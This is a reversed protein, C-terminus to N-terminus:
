SARPLLFSTAVSRKSVEIGECLVDIRHVELSHTTNFASNISGVLGDGM